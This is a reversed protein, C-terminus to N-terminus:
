SSSLNLKEFAAIKISLRMLREKIIRERAQWEQEGASNFSALEEKLREAKKENLALLRRLENVEDRLKKNATKLESIKDATAKIAGDLEALIYGNDTKLEDMKAEISM